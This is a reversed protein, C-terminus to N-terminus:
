LFHTIFEQSLLIKQSSHIGLASASFAHKTLFSPSHQEGPVLDGLQRPRPSVHPTSARPLFTVHVRATQCPHCDSAVTGWERM